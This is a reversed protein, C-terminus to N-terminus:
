IKGSKSNNTKAKSTTVNKNFTPDFGITLNSGDSNGLPQLAKGFMQDGYWKALNPDKKFNKKIWRVFENREVETVYTYFQPKTTSGVPRAM